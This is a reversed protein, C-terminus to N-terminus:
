AAAASILNEVMKSKFSDQDKNYLNAVHDYLEAVTIEKKEQFQELLETLKVESILNKDIKLRHELFRSVLHVGDFLKIDKNLDILKGNEDILWPFSEEYSSIGLDTLDENEVLPQKEKIFKILALNSLGENTAASDFAAATSPSASWSTLGSSDTPLQAPMLSDFNIRSPNNINSSLIPSTHIFKSSPDVLHFPFHQFKTITNNQLM